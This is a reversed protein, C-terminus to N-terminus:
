HPLALLWAGIITMIVVLLPPTRCAVLLLLGVLSLAADAASRVASTWV